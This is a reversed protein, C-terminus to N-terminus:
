KNAYVLRYKAPFLALEGGDRMKLLRHGTIELPTDDVNTLLLTYKGPSEYCLELVDADLQLADRQICHEKDWYCQLLEGDASRHEWPFSHGGSVKAIWSGDVHYFRNSGDKDYGKAKAFREMLSPTAPKFQKRRVPERKEEEDLDDDEFSEEVDPENAFETDHNDSAMQRTADADTQDASTTEEDNALEGQEETNRDQMSTDRIPAVQDDPLLIFNEELYESVFELPRDYCLMIADAIDQRHFVRGLELAVAKAVKAPSRNEVYLTSDRWLVDARRPTGAPTDDIYPVTQLGSLVQWNTEILRNALERIRQAEDQDDIAIRRLGVGLTNLWPVKQPASLGNPQDDFREEISQALPRLASFPPQEWTEVSLKQLDATKQKIPKFLHKWGVLAQMTLSYVLYETPTWEGEINLWHGCEEWIRMPYRPLLLRVRRVEDATLSQNSALGALWAISLDATPRDAVGVKSWLTLHRASPHVLAAGPVDGEDAELFVEDATGWCNGEILIIKENAFAHKIQGFEDTSCKSVLRDLRHYWKEIEDVPPNDARALARLRDLLSDPGTPTDRVGLLILLPRTAETDFEARVFPEVDLLSETDPTRRLLAAPHRFFGRTDQLCPLNRFRMIWSPLLAEMTIIQTNGNRAEQLIKASKAEIWFTAPQKLIHDLLRGWFAQDDAALDRWRRWHEDDFDWDEVIFNNTKYHYSPEGDFGREKLTEM